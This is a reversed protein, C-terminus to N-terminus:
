EELEKEVYPKLKPIDYTEEGDFCYFDTKEIHSLGLHKYFKILRKKDREFGAKDENTEVCGDWEIPHPKVFFVDGDGIFRKIYRSLVYTGINKGRYKENIHIRNLYYVFRPLDGDDKLVKNYLDMVLQENTKFVFIGDINNHYYNMDIIIMTMTGYVKEGDTIKYKIENVFDIGMIDLRDFNLNILNKDSSEGIKQLHLDCLNFSM